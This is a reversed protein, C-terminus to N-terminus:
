QDDDGRLGRENPDSNVDMAMYREFVPIQDRVVAQHLPHDAFEEMMSQQSDFAITMGYAWGDTVPMTNAGVVISCVAPVAELGRLHDLVDDIEEQRTDAGFQFLVTHYLM